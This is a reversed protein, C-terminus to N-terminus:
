IHILSLPEFTCDTQCSVNNCSPVDTQTDCTNMCICTQAGNDVTICEDSNAYTDSSDSNAERTILTEYDEVCKRMNRLIRLRKGSRRRTSSTHTTSPESMTTGSVTSGEACNDIFIDHDEDTCELCAFNFQAETDLIFEKKNLKAKNRAPPKVVFPTGKELACAMMDYTESGTNAQAAM